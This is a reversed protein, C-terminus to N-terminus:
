EIQTFKLDEITLTHNSIFSDLNFVCLPFSDEALFFHISDIINKKNLNTGSLEILISPFKDKKPNIKDFEEHDLKNFFIIKEISFKNMVKILNDNVNDVSFIEDTIHKLQNDFDEVIIESNLVFMPSNM